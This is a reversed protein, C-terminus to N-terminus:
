TLSNEYCKIINDTVIDWSYKDEITKRAARGILERLNPDDLLKLVARAMSEPSKPPVLIGNSGSLIVERNGAIDNAVLPLGCSMAELIVTSLGEHYSPQVLVMANQYLKVLRNRDARGFFTIQKQLGKNQVRVRMKELLPGDGCLIFHADPRKACVYNACDLLDLVGKGSRFVGVFLVYPKTQNKSQKPIFFRQDVGNGVVTIAQPNLNYARLEERVNSSVTTIKNSLKFIRKEIPPYVIMQQLKDAWSRLDHTDTYTNEFARKSPSHVTTIVPLTTKIPPPLPSHMHIVTLKPELSRLLKNVFFGHLCIHFPYFPVYSVRYVNIGDTSETTTEASLSRTIIEVKHGRELLKRSLYYVYYGIGGSDPPFERTIM